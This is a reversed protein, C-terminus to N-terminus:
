ANATTRSITTFKEIIISIKTGLVVCHALLCANSEALTTKM